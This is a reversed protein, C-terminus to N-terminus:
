RRASTTVALVAPTRAANSEMPAQSRNARSGLGKGPTGAVTTPLPADVAVPKMVTALNTGCFPSSTNIAAKGRKLPAAVAQGTVKTPSPGSRPVKCCCACSRPTDSRNCNM